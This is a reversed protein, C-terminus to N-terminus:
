KWDETQIAINTERRLRALSDIKVKLAKLDVNPVWRPTAADLVARLVKLQRDLCDRRTIRVMNGNAVNASNIEVTLTRVKETLAVAETMEPGLDVADGDGEQRKATDVLRKHLEAIRKTADAREIVLAAVTM